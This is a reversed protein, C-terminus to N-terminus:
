PKAERSFEPARGFVERWVAEFRERARDDAFRVVLKGHSFECYGLQGAYGLSFEWRAEVGPLGYTEWQCRLDFMTSEPYQEVFRLGIERTGAFGKAERERGDGRKEETIERQEIGAGALAEFLRRFFSGPGPASWADKAPEEPLGGSLVLLGAGCADSM